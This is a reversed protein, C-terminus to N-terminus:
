SRRSPDIKRKRELLRPYIGVKLGILTFYTLREPNPDKKLNILVM